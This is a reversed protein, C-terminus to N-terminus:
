HSATLSDKTWGRLRVENSLAPNRCGADAESDSADQQGRGWCRSGTEAAPPPRRRQGQYPLRQRLPLAKRFALAEGRYPLHCPTLRSPSTSNLLLKGTLSDKTWGRLRVENALEGLLPAEPSSALSQPIGLGGRPLPPPVADATVSLNLGALAERDPQGEYLRETESREGLGPQPVWRRSRQRKCGAPRPGLLSERNGGSAATTATAGSLPAEPSFAFSQPIGLGGRPLPPPMAYAIVSLNLKALAERDPQGEYLRETESREGLGPQPVWRRSRQRKCGAPRPGLLSERNGGSAATTATAGSLPAEPSFAFSQPIGLGGRPLPPPM